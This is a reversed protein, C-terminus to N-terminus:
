PQEQELLKTAAVAPLPKSYLYGQIYECGLNQLLDRLEVTEVGEAVVDLNLGRGLALVANIIALDESNPHLDKVFSRDIKLTQFPFQKLYGLSSYGTGFDDMALSIGMQNIKQLIAKAADTNQITISETIELELFAPPLQTQKLIKAIIAVINAQQFQGPSLNVSMKVPVLGMDQWAKNQLCATKLVWEGIPVILGNEEAIPIFTEPSVWGLQPNHWRILAEMKVIQGTIVNVIPQYHLIFESKKLALHLLNKLTLVKNAQSYFSSDYYRWSNGKFQQAQSLALDANKLLTEADVGHKPYTAIGISATIYIPKSDVDFASDFATLIRTAIARTYDQHDIQDFLLTFEDNGWRAIIDKDRICQQIRIVVQQLLRDGMQHGFSDNITKFRDLDILMIALLASNQQAKTIAEALQCILVSRKPLETLTDQAAKHQADAKEQERLTVNRFGWVRGVIKQELKQTQFYFELITGNNLHFIEKASANSQSEQEIADFNIPKALRRSILGVIHKSDGKIADPNIQWLSAFQQNFIVIQNNNDLVLIGDGATEFVALILKLSKSLKQNANELLKNTSYLLSNQEALQQEQQYSRLAEKITLVLDTEDWPKTIYRYLAAANIVNGLSDTGAQGTLLIKLTQPYYAHLIILFEDGSMVPMIQDSIVVAVAIGEAELEACLALAETGSSALEINYDQGLHRKLQKGLSSLIIEEDDVCVIALRKM